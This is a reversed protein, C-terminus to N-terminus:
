LKSSTTSRIATLVINNSGAISRDQNDEYDEMAIDTSARISLYESLHPSGHHHPKTIVFTCLKIYVLM